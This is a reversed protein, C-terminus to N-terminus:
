SFFFALVYPVGALAIGLLALSVGKINGKSRIVIFVTVMAAGFVVLGLFGSLLILIIFYLDAAGMIPSHHGPPPPYINGLLVAVSWTVLAVIGLTLALFAAKNTREAM